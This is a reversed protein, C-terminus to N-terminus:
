RIFFNILGNQTKQKLAEDLSNRKLEKRNIQPLKEGLIIDSSSDRMYEYRELSLVFCTSMKAKWYLNEDSELMLFLDGHTFDVDGKFSKINKSENLNRFKKKNSKSCGYIDM